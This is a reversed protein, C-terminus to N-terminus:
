PETGWLLAGGEWATVRDSDEYSTSASYSYDNTEDLAGWAASHVGCRVEAFAGPALTGEAFAYVVVSDATATPTGYAVVSRTVTALAVSGYYCDVTTAAGTEDTFYYRLETGTLAVAATGLNMLKVYVRITSDSPSCDQEICSGLQVKVSPSACTTGSCMHTVCDAGVVCSEGVDCAKFAACDGGCDVDTEGPSLAGDACTTPASGGQAVV